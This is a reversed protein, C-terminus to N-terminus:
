SERMEDSDEDGRLGEKWLAIRTLSVRTGQQKGKERM